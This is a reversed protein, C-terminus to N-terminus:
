RVLGILWMIWSRIAYTNDLCLCQDTIGKLSIMIEIESFILLLHNNFVCNTHRINCVLIEVNHKTILVWKTSQQDTEIQLKTKFTLYLNIDGTWFSLVDNLTRM